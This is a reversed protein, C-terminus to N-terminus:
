RSKLSLSVIFKKGVQVAAFSDFRQKLVDLSDLEIDKLYMQNKPEPKSIEIPETLIENRVSADNHSVIFWSRDKNKQIMYGDLILETIAKNAFISANNNYELGNSILADKVSFSKGINATATQKIAEVKQRGTGIM